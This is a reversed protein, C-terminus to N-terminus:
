RAAVPRPAQQESRRRPAVALVLLDVIAFCLALVLNNLAERLGILYVWKDTTAAISHVSAQLGTATGLAGFSLCLLALVILKALDEPDRGRAYRAAFGISVLGTVLVPYVVVGADRIFDM